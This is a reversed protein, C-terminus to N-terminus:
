EGDLITVSYEERLVEREEETLEWYDVGIDALMEVLEAETIEGEEATPAPTEDATAGGGLLWPLIAEVVSGLDLEGDKTEAGAPPQSPTAPESPQAPTAEAARQSAVYQELNELVSELDALFDPHAARSARAQDLIGAFYEVEAELQDLDAALVGGAASVGLLFVLSLVWLKCTLM